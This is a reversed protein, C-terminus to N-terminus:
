DSRYYDSTGPYGSSYLGTGAGVSDAALGDYATALTQHGSYRTGSSIPAAYDYRTRTHGRSPEAYGSHEDVASYPRKAGLNVDEYAYTDPRLRSDEFDRDLRRSYIDESPPFSKRRPPVSRAGSHALGGRRSSYSAKYAVPRTGSASRRVFDEGVRVPAATRSHYTNIPRSYGRYSGRRLTGADAPRRGRGRGRGIPTRREDRILQERFTRFLDNVDDDDRVSFRGGRSTLGRANGRSIFGRGRSMGVRKFPYREAVGLNRWGPRTRIGVGTHGIPFGGRMGGKVAQSKPLPNALRVKVKLKTEGEIIMTNNLGEICALAQEHCGFNVFGFDRRKATPMNRSLVVKEIEGFKKLHEKVRDEDWFQPLGDVFVSKVQAMVEADPERLPEAFAVKATRDGGFIVDPKQLRKYANMADMHTGFELFAFGRSLGENQTDGVLTIEELGDVGYDKLKKKVAEKTWTRCINGLFLTDNDESPAVGVRKGRIVVNKLEDVARKAEETTAFGVFAFGKNKNTLPNRLLRVEVVEGVQTFVKRLDEEIADKDLGGVFVELEKKRRREQVVAPMEIEHQEEDEEAEDTGAEADEYDGEEGEAEEYEEEAEYEEMEEGEQDLDEPNAEEDGEGDPEDLNEMPERPDGHSEEIDKYSLSEEKANGTNATIKGVADQSRKALKEDTTVEKQGVKVVRKQEEQSTGSNKVQSNEVSNTIKPKSADTAKEKSTVAVKTKAATGVKGMTTVNKESSKLAGISGKVEKTGEAQTKDGAESKSATAKQTTQKGQEDTTSVKGGHTSDIRKETSASAEKVPDSVDSKTPTKSVGKKPPLKKGSDSKPNDPIASRTKMASFRLSTSI